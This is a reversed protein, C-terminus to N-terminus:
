KDGKRNIYVGELWVALTFAGVVLAYAGITAAAIKAALCVNM